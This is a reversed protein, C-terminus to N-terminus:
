GTARVAINPKESRSNLIRYRWFPAPNMLVKGTGEYIRVWGEGVTLFGLTNDTPRGVRFRVDGTRAIVLSGDCIVREGPQLQHEFVPGKTTLAVKGYGRVRTLLYIPGEGALISRWIPERHFGIDVSGESAWYTGRDLLWTEGDLDIVCYGGLSSELTIMGSGSYVPRYVAENALWSKVVTGLPPFARSHVRIDGMMYSLAGAEVRVSENELQIQVYHTGELEKVEFRAM